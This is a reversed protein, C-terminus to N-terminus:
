WMANQAYIDQLGSAPQSASAQNAASIPNFQGPISEAALTKRASNQSYQGARATQQQPHQIQTTLTGMSNGKAQRQMVTAQQHFDGAGFGGQPKGYSVSSPSTKTQQNGNYGGYTILAYDSTNSGFHIESYNPSGDSDRSNHKM